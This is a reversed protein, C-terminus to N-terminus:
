DEVFFGDVVVAEVECPPPLDSLRADLEVVDVDVVSLLLALVDVVVPVVAAASAGTGFATEVLIPLFGACIAFIWGCSSASPRVSSSAV